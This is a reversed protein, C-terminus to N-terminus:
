SSTLGVATGSTEGGSRDKMCLAFDHDEDQETSSHWLYINLASLKGPVCRSLLVGSSGADKLFTMCGSTM